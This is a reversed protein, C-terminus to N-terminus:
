PAVVTIPVTVTYDDLSGEPTGISGCGLASCKVRRVGCSVADSCDIVGGSWGSGAPHGGTYFMLVDDGARANAPVVFGATWHDIAIEAMEFQGWSVGSGFGGQGIDVFPLVDISPDFRLVFSEGPSLVADAPSEMTVRPARIFNEFLFSSTGTSDSIRFEIVELAEWDAVNVGLVLRESFCFADPGSGLLESEQDAIMPESGLLFEQSDWRPCEGRELWADLPPMIEVVVAKAVGDIGDVRVELEYAGRLGAVTAPVEHPRRGSENCAPGVLALAVAFLLASRPHLRASM